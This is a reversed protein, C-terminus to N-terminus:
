CVQGPNYLGRDDVPNNDGKTLLRVDPVGNDDERLLIFSFHSSTFLIAIICCFSFVYVCSLFESKSIMMIMGSM